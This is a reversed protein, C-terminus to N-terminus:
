LKYKRWGEVDKRVGDPLKSLWIRHAEEYTQALIKMDDDIRYSNMIMGISFVMGVGSMVMFIWNSDLANMVVFTFNIVILVSGIIRIWNIQKKLM